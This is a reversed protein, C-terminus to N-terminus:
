RKLEEQAARLEERAEALKTKRKDIKTQDGQNMAKRLDAERQAVEHQAELVKEERSKQLTADDCHQEVQSLATQLGSLRGANGQARAAEIQTQLEARKAACGVAEAAFSPLALATCSALLTIRLLHRSNM